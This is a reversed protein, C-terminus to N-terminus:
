KKENLSRLGDNNSKSKIVLPKPENDIKPAKLVELDKKLSDVENEWYDIAGQYIYDGYIDITEQEPNRFVPMGHKDIFGEM